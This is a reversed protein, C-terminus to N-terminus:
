QVDSKKVWSYIEKLLVRDSKVQQITYTKGKISSPINEGTAYKKASSKIKVKSGVKFNPTVPKASAKPASGGRMKALLNINQQATGTYKDKFGYQNYLKQRNAFSSNVKISNLYEVISNTKMDGKNQPKPQSVQPKAGSKLKNLLQINQDASGNYGKIGYQAALKARNAFSSDMGNANMWDVVSGGTASKPTSPKSPTPKSPKPSSVSPSKGDLMAKFDNWTIGKAGSRLNHPCDKWGSTEKHTIVNSKSINHKKMLYKTLEAANKVAKKFDGDSNVCIEIAISQMNGKGNGDGGHWCRVNDPFSQWIEKDDVQYHWSASRSNGNYQLKAHMHANAGRSTNATEHIVIYNCPNGYGSTVKSIVSSSVLMQNIKM